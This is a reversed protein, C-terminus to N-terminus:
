FGFVATKPCLPNSLLLVNDAATIFQGEFLQLALSVFMCVFTRFCMNTIQAVDNFKRLRLCIWHLQNITWSRKYYVM